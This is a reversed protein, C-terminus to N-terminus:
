WTVSAGGTDSDPDPQGTEAASSRGTTLAKQEAVKRDLEEPGGFWEPEAGWHQGPRYRPGKALSPAVVLLSIVIVALLPIGVFFLVAHLTSMPAPNPWTLPTDAVTM